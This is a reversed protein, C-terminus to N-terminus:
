KPKPIDEAKVTFRSVNIGRYVGSFNTVKRSSGDSRVITLDASYPVDITSEMVTAQVRVRSHPPVKLTATWSDTKQDAVTEGWNYTYSAEFSLEVKGEVLFPVGTKVTTKVGVKLGISNSWSKTATYSHSFSLAQDISSSSDNEVIGEKLSLL